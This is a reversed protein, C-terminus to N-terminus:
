MSVPPKTNDREGLLEGNCHGNCVLLEAVASIVAM